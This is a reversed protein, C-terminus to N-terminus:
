SFIWTVNTSHAQRNQLRIPSAPQRLVTALAEFSLVLPLSQDGDGPPLVRTVASYRGGGGESTALHAKQGEGAGDRATEVLVGM